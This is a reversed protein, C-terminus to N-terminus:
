KNSDKKICERIKSIFNGFSGLNLKLLTTNITASSVGVSDAFQRCNKYKPLEEINELIYELVESQKGTFYKNRSKIDNMLKELNGTEHRKEITIESLSQNIEKVEEIEVKRIIGEEEFLKDVDEIGELKIAFSSLEM